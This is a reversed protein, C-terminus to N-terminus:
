SLWICDLVNSKIKRYFINNSVHSAFIKGLGYVAMESISKCASTKALKLHDWKNIKAKTPQSKITIDLVSNGLDIDPVKERLETGSTKYKWTM